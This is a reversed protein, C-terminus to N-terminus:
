QRKKHIEKILKLLKEQIETQDIPHMCESMVVPSLKNKEISIDIAIRNAITYKDYEEFENAM